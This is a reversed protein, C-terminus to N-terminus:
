SALGGDRHDAPWARTLRPRRKSRQRARAIAAAISAGEAISDRLALVDSQNYRRDSTDSTPFGYRAEWELLTEASVGLLAAAHSLDLTRLMQDAPGSHAVARALEADMADDSRKAARCLSLVLFVVLLWTGIAVLVIMEM